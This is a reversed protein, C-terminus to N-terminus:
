VIWYDMRGTVSRNLRVFRSTDRWLLGRHLEDRTLYLRLADEFLLLVIM